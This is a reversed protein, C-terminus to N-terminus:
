PLSIPDPAAREANFALARGAGLADAHAKTNTNQSIHDM